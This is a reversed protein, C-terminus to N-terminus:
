QTERTPVCRVGNLFEYGPQCLGKLFGLLEPNIWSALDPYLNGEPDERYQAFNFHDANVFFHGAVAISNTKSGIDTHAILEFLNRHGGCKVIGLIHRLIEIGPMVGLNEYFKDFDTHLFQGNECVSHTKSQMGFSYMYRNLVYCKSTEEVYVQGIKCVPFVLTKFIKSGPSTPSKEEM